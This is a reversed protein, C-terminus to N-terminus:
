NQFYLIASSELRSALLAFSTQSSRTRLLQVATERSFIREGVARVRTAMLAHLPLLRDSPTQNMGPLKRLGEVEAKIMGIEMRQRHVEAELRAIRTDDDM